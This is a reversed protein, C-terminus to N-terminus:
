LASRTVNYNFSSRNKKKWLEEYEGLLKFAKKEREEGYMEHRSGNINELLELSMDNSPSIEYLASHFIDMGNEDYRARRLIGNTIKNLTPAFDPYSKEYQPNIESCDLDNFTEDLVSFPKIGTGDSKIHFFTDGNEAEYVSAKISDVDFGCIVTVEEKLRNCAIRTTKMHGVEHLISGQAKKEQETNGIEKSMYKSLLEVRNEMQVYQAAVNDDLTWINRELREVVYNKRNFDLMGIPFNNEINFKEHLSIAKEVENIIHKHGDWNKLNYRVHNKITWYYPERYPDVDLKRFAGKPLEEFSHWDDTKQKTHNVYFAVEGSELNRGLYCVRLGRYSDRLHAFIIITNAM